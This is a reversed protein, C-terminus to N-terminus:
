SDSTALYIYIYIYIHTHTYIYICPPSAVQVRRSRAGAALVSMTTRILGANSAEKAWACLARLLGRRERGRLVVGALTDRRARAAGAAHLNRAEINKLNHAASAPGGALPQGHLLARQQEDARGPPAVM